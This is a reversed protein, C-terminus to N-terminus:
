EVLGTVKGLTQLLSAPLDVDIRAAGNGGSVTWELRQGKLAAKLEKMAAEGLGSDDADPLAGAADLAALDIWGSALGTTSGDTELSLLRELHRADTTGIAMLVLGERQVADLFLEPAGAEDALVLRHVREGEGASYSDQTLMARGRAGAPKALAQAQDAIAQVDRGLDRGQDAGAEGAAPHRTVWYVVPHGDVLDIGLSGAEGGLLLNAVDAALERFQDQQAPTARAFFAERELLKAIRAVVALAKAPPHAFDARFLTGEPFGPRRFSAAAAPPAPLEFPEASLGVRLAGAGSRGLSLGIRTVDRMTGIVLDAGARAADAADDEAEVGADLEAFFQEYQNPIARKLAAVDVDVRAILENGAYAAALADEGVAAVARPVPGFIFQDKGRRFGMGELTVMDTRGDFPKGGSQVFGELDAKGANVPLVIATDELAVRAGDAYLLVGLPRDGALGGPGIFPMQQEIFTTSLYPVEGLGVDKALAAVKALSAVSASMVLTPEAAPAAPAPAPEAPKAGPAHQRALAACACGLVLVLFTGWRHVVRM